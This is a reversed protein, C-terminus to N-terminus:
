RGITSTGFINGIRLFYRHRGGEGAGFGLYLPGIPSRYGLYASGHFKANKFLDGADEAVQGYELTTGLYAPMLGSGAFQYRYGGMVMSFNPGVLEGDNLGSLRGFGGARFQAYIPADGKLTEYYRGGLLVAHRGFTRATFVDAQFQDFETDAGLSEESRAFNLRVFSGDGPFYRDDLRDYSGQVFWEGADFDEDVLDPPGVDVKVTGTFGTIGAALAASRGFERGLSVSGGYQRVRNSILANGDSDYTSLVREEAFLHPELYIKLHPNLYKYVYAFLGPNAGLQTVVRLESGFDDVATNLYGVRLNLESSDPGGFYDLGWELLHTGRYDQGVHLVIGTEGAEEVVEYRVLEMFGLAYIERVNEDLAAVDLPEGERISLRSLIVSDDFRSNNDVRVFAITPSPQLRSAVDARHAAYEAPSVSLAALETRAADAAEFGIRIGTESKGFDASGVEDGLPPTILVDQETLTAIQAVSNTNVLINTLQGVIALATDLEEKKSLGGGVDVVILVDAGMNRVVDVPVNNVIGGDVLMHGDIMVPDFVGPVSMSSRMAVAVDGESFVVEEATAIDAAVTRLPIPLKNFDSTQVREKVISEFLFSIKQGAIVGRKILSVDKGIGLKPGFLAINDDRKRRFPQDQRQTDDVFLDDWDMGLMIEELEDANMGTAYLAAVLSGISTGAVCDIPINLEEIVRIVGIHASGRAGGGGLVLGITPRDSTPELCMSLANPAALVLMLCITLGLFDGAIRSRM